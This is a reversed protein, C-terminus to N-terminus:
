VGVSWVWIARGGVVGLDCAWLGRGSLVDVWWAWIVRGGAVGLLCLCVDRACAALLGWVRGSCFGGEFSVLVLLEM